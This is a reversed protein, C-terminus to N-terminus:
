WGHTQSGDVLNFPQWGGGYSSSVSAIVAGSALELVNTRPQEARAPAAVLSWSVVVAVTLSRM